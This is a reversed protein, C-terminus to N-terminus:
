FFREEDEGCNSESAALANGWGCRERFECGLLSQAVLIELGVTRLAVVVALGAWPMAGREDAEVFLRVQGAASGGVVVTDSSGDEVAAAYHGGRGVGIGGVELVEEGVEV